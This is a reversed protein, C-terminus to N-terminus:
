DSLPVGSAARRIWARASSTQRPNDRWRAPRSVIVRVRQLERWDVWQAGSGGGCPDSIEREAPMPTGICGQCARRSPLPDHRGSEAAALSSREAMISRAPGNESM